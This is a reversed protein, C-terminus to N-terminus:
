GSQKFAAVHCFGAKSSTLLDSFLDTHGEESASTLAPRQRVRM